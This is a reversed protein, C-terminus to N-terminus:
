RSKERQEDFVLSDVKNVANQLKGQFVQLVLNQHEQPDEKAIGMGSSPWINPAQDQDLPRHM